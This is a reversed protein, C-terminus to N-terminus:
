VRNDELSPFFKPRLVYATSRGGLHTHKNVQTKLTTLLLRFQLSKKM